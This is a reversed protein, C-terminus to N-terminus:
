AAARDPSADPPMVDSGLAAVVVNSFGRAALADSAAAGEGDESAVLVTARSFRALREVGPLGALAPAAAIVHDYTRSLAGLVVSLKEASLMTATNRTGRGVPIVHVRSARDRQIVEGFNTAGFLLDSLGPARTDAVLEDAPRATVDIDLLVVRSGQAALARALEIAVKSPPEDSTSRAVVVVGRGIGRMHDALAALNRQKVKASADQRAVAAPPGGAAGGRSQPAEPAVTAPMARVMSVPNGQRIDGRLFEASTIFVTSLMMAALTSLLVIPTKKPFHPTPSAVARSVIRADAPVADPTERATADRYRSLYSELLDRQAKAEREFARLQVDQEGLSSAQRKMQDLSATMMEVRAGSIRADNELSRILKEGEIRIQAELDAIQARLEKIRPHQSLLTSSQEALQARLTVRQENLRRILESNVIESAEIPKGTSMMERILRAKSEADTRQSRALVLQSNLEGLQQASLSNNNAGVYLNSRTRFEEVRAEAEAVKGRLREIEGALWQVAQRMAEQKAGQQVILYGDAIANAIEAALEANESQFNIEIVRSKDVQWVALREYYRELVREEASMSSPDRELWILSLLEGIVSGVAAPNFEPKDVLKLERMVKRALDRSQVLQVQSQVAEADVLTRDREAGRDGETPRNYATERNEILVRTESKYRPTLLNVTIVSAAAILITPLVIWRRRRWLARSLSAFDLEGESMEIPHAAVSASARDRRM